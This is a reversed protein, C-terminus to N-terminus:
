GVLARRGGARAVNNKSLFSEMADSPADVLFAGYSEQFTPWLRQLIQQSRYFPHVWANQLTEQLAGPEKLKQDLRNKLKWYFLMDQYKMRKAHYRFAKLNNAQEEASPQRIGLMIRSMPSLTFERASGGAATAVQYKRANNSVKRSFLADETGDAVAKHQKLALFNQGMEEISSKLDTGVDRSFTFVGVCLGHQPHMVLYVDTTLGTHDDIMYLFDAGLEGKLFRACENAMEIIPKPLRGSFKYCVLTEGLISQGAANVLRNASPFNQRKFSLPSIMRRICHDAPYRNTELQAYTTNIIPQSHPLLFSRGTVPSSDAALTLQARTFTDQVHRNMHEIAKAIDLYGNLGSRWVFRLRMTNKDASGHNDYLAILSIGHHGSEGDGIFFACYDIQERKYDANSFIPNELGGMCSAYRGYEEVALINLNNEALQAKTSILAYIKVQGLTKTSFMTGMDLHAIQRIEHSLIVRPASPRRSLVVPERTAAPEGTRTRKM